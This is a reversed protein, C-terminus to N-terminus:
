EALLRRIDREFVAKDRYGVYKEAIRGQRDILFTTPIGRIGGYAEAVKPTGMAIPYSVGNEKVFPRVVDAGGEDLALGVAEFGQGRYDAYLEKFHPIEARCPPCWTAWFDLLVVKGKLGSM